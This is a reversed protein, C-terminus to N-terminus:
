LADGDEMSRVGELETRSACPWTNPGPQCRRKITRHERERRPCYHGYPAALDTHRLACRFPFLFVLKEPLAMRGSECAHEVSDHQVLVIKPRNRVLGPLLMSRLSSKPDIELQIASDHWFTKLEVISSTRATGHQALVFKPRKRARRPREVSRWCSRAQTTRATDHHVLAIKPRNRAPGPQM